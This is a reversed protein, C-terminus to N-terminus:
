WIRRSRPSLSKTRGSPPETNQPLHKNSLGACSISHPIQPEPSCLRRGFLRLKLKASNIVAMIKSSGALRIVIITDDLGVTISRLVIKLPM